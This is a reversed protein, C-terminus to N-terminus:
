NRENVLSLTELIDEVTSFGHHHSVLKGQQDYVFLAPPADVHLRRFTTMLTDICFTSRPIEDLPYKVLFSDVQDIDAFTVFFNETSSLIEPNQLLLKAEEQCFDCEPHFFLLLVARGSAAITVPKNDISSTTMEPLWEIDALKDQQRNRLIIIGTFLALISCVFLSLIIKKMTISVYCHIDNDIPVVALRM